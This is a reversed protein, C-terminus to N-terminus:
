VQKWIIVDGPFVKTHKASVNQGLRQQGNVEFVLDGSLSGVRSVLDDNLGSHYRSDVRFPLSASFITEEKKVAIAFSSISKTEGGSGCGALPAFVLVRGVNILFERRTLCSM